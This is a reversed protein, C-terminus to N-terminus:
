MLNSSNFFASPFLVVVIIKCIFKFGTYLHNAGAAANCKEEIPKQKPAARQGQEAISISLHNQEEHIQVNFEM